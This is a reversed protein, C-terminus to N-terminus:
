TGSKPSIVHLTDKRSEAESLMISELDMQTAASSLVENRAASYIGVFVYVQVNVVNEKDM